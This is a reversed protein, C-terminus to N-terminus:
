RILPPRVDVQRRTSRLDKTVRCVDIIMQCLKRIREIHVGVLPQLDVEVTGGEVDAVTTEQDVSEIHVRQVQFVLSLTLNGVVSHTYHTFWATM